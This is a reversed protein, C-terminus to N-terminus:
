REIEAPAGAYNLRAQQAQAYATATAVLSMVPDCAAAIRDACASAPGSGPGYAWADGIGAAISQVSAPDVEWLGPRWLAGAYRLNAVALACGAAAAQAIRRLGYGIWAVDAYV